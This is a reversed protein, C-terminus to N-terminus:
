KPLCPEIRIDDFYATGIGTLALSVRIRGSSPVKRYLTFQQWKPTNTLRVGLPSDGASDYLMAGDVSASIPKTRMWGSVQVWSGPEVAVEPSHIALFTRELAGFTQLPNKPKIELKLCQSGEHPGESVRQAYLDVEDLPTPSQLLWGPQPLNPALEFDGNDLKNRGPVTTKLQEMLKWHRPLTYYCLAYPSAAPTSLGKVAEDWQARMVVRLPRVARRAELYAERFEKDAYHLKSKDFLDKSESMLQDEHTVVHGLQKLESEVIQVKETEKQVLTMAWWASLERTKAIRNQLYVLLGNPGNDATFVIASTLAFEPIYARKGGLVREVRLSHVDVPSVEWAECSDPVPVTIALNIVGGQGTCYQAGPGVWIPLVLVARDGHIVAARVNPNSTDIWEPPSQASSLIPELLQLEQNVLALELMRDHGKHSEALFRDSWVGLGKCGAAVALYSLLRIQEPQPGIPETFPTAAPQDYVMATYWDPLHDQIWTWLFTQPQSLNRRQNLLERYQPMELSTMLPWRHTGVLEISSSSYAKFGDSVDTGVPRSDFNKISTVMQTVAPQQEASLGETELNWFLVSDPHTFRRIRDQITDASVFQTGDGAFVPLDAMVRFKLAAAEEILAPPSSDALCVTNFGAERLVDLPTDTHRIARFFFRRGGVLLQNKLKVDLPLSDVSTVDRTPPRSVTRFPTKETVPGIELDDIWVDYQGVGGYVNVVLRDIYAGSVDLTKKSDIQMRMQQDRLLKLPNGLQLREWRGVLKYPESQIYIALSEQPNNPNQEHPLVVRGMLVMGPNGSKLRISATSDDALVARPTEYFYTISTGNEVQLQIQESHQGLHATEDTIRHITERYVADASGRVWLPDKGEFSDRYIQSPVIPQQWGVAFGLASLVLIAGTLKM